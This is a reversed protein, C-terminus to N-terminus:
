ATAVTISIGRNEAVFLGNPNPINSNAAWRYAVKGVDPTSAALKGNTGRLFQVRGKGTLPNYGTVVFILKGQIDAKTLLERINHEQNQPYNPDTDLALGTLGPTVGGATTVGRYFSWRGGAGPESPGFICRKENCSFGVGCDSASACEVCSKNSCVYSGKSTYPNGCKTDFISECPTATCLGRTAGTELKCFPTQPTGACNTNTVCNTNTCFGSVCYPNTGGCGADDTCKTKCSEADCVQGAPCQTDADCKVSCVGKVCYAKDGKCDASTSCNTNQCKGMVCLPASVPCTADTSCEGCKGTDKFCRNLGATVPCDSDDDCKAGAPADSQCKGEVCYPKDAPCDGNVGCEKCKGKEEGPKIFCKGYGVVGSLCDENKTCDRTAASFYIGLAVLAGVFVLGVIISIWFWINSGISQTPSPTGGDGPIVGTSM